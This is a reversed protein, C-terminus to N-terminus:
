YIFNGNAVISPSTTPTSKTAWCLLSMPDERTDPEIRALLAVRVAPNRNVARDPHHWVQSHTKVLDHQLKGCEPLPRPRVCVPPVPSPEPGTTVSLTLRRESRCAVSGRTPARCLRRSSPLWFPGNGRWGVRALDAARNCRRDRYAGEGGPQRPLRRRKSGSRRASRKGTPRRGPSTGTRRDRVREDPGPPPTESAAEWPGRAGRDRGGHPAIVRNASPAPVAAPRSRKM